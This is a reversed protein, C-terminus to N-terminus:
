GLNQDLYGARALTFTGKETDLDYINFNTKLMPSKPQRPPPGNVKEGSIRVICAYSFTAACKM